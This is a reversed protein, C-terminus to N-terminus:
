KRYAEHQRHAARRDQNRQHFSERNGRGTRPPNAPPKERDSVLRTVPALTVPPLTAQGDQLEVVVEPSDRCGKRRATLGVQRPPREVDVELTVTFSGDPQVNLEDITKEVDLTAEPFHFVVKAEELSGNAARLKGRVTIEQQTTVVLNTPGQAPKGQFLRPLQLVLGLALLAAVIKLHSRHFEYRL